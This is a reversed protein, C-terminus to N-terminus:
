NLKADASKLLAIKVTRAADRVASVDARELWKKRVMGSLILKSVRTASRLREERVQVMEGPSAEQAALYDLVRFEGAQEEPSRRSRAPSGSMGALHLALQGDETIRYAVGRKFEA